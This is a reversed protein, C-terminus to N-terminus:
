VGIELVCSFAILQADNETATAAATAPCNASGPLTVEAGIMEGAVLLWITLLYTM